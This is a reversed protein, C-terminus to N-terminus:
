GKDQPLEPSEWLLPHIGLASMRLGGKIQNGQGESDEGRQSKTYEQGGGSWSSEGRQGASEFHLMVM